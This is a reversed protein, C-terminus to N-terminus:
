EVQLVWRWLNTVENREKGKTRQQKKWQPCHKMCTPPLPMINEHKEHMYNVEEYNKSNALELRANMETCNENLSKIGHFVHHIGEKTVIHRQIITHNLWWMSNFNMGYGKNKYLAKLSQTSEVCKCTWVKTAKFQM